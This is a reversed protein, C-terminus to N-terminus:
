SRSPSYLDQLHKKKGGFHFLPFSFSTLTLLESGELSTSGAAREAGCQSPLLCLSKDSSNNTSQSVDLSGKSQSPDSPETLMETPIFIVRLGGKPLPLGCHGKQCFQAHSQSLDSSEKTQVRLMRDRCVRFVLWFWVALRGRAAFSDSLILHQAAKEVDWPRPGSRLQLSGRRELPRLYM